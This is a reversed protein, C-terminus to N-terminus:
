KGSLFYGRVKIKLHYTSMIKGDVKRLLIALGIDDIIESQKDTMGWVAIVCNM